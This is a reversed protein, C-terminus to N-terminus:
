QMKLFNNTLLIMKILSFVWRKTTLWEPNLAQKGFIVTTIKDKSNRYTLLEKFDKSLKLYPSVLTLKEGANKILDEIESVAKRTNIFKAM